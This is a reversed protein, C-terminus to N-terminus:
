IPCKRFRKFKQLKSVNSHLGTMLLRMPHRQGLLAVYGQIFYQMEDSNDVDDITILVKRNKSKLYNLMKKLLTM